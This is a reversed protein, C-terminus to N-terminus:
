EKHIRKKLEQQYEQPHTTKRHFYQKNKTVFRESCYQCSYLEEGTHYIAIHERMHHPRKFRKHCRECEFRSESHARRMHSSLADQNRVLKGCTECTVQVGDPQTHMRRIHKKLCYKDMLWVACLECQVKSEMRRGQHDKRHTEFCQKSRFVRACVECVHKEGDGHVAVLHKRLSGQSALVKDCQPCSVSGHAVMIHANLHAKSVFAKLCNACHFPRDAEPAHVEKAHEKLVKSSSYSKGCQDCRFANPNLHLQLHEIMWCKKYITRNCCRLYGPVNHVVKYHKRLDSFDALPMSCLDCSLEYHQLVLQDVTPKSSESSTTEIKILGKSESTHCVSARESVCDSLKNRNNADEVHKPAPTEPPDPTQERESEDHHSEHETREDLMWIQDADNVLEITIPAENPHLSDVSSDLPVRKPSDNSQNPEAIAVPKAGLQAQNRAVQEAFWYFEEIIMKCMGCILGCAKSPLADFYFVRVIKTTLEQDTLDILNQSDSSMCFNCVRDALAAM